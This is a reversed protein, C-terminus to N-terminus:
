TNKKKFIVFFLIVLILIVVFIYSAIATAIYPYFKATISNIFPHIIHINIKDINQEKRLESIFMDICKDTMSGINTRIFSDSDKNTM